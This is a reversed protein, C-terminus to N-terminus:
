RNLTSPHWPDPYKLAFGGPVRSVGSADLAAALEEGELGIWAEDLKEPVEYGLAVMRAHLPAFRRGVNKAYGAIEM